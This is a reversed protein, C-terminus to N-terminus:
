VSVLVDSRRRQAGTGTDEAEEGSARPAQEAPLHAAQRAHRQGSQSDAGVQVDVQVFHQGILDQRLRESTQQLLRAVDGQAASIHVQLRGGEQNLRIELSGLEAPDLRITAQQKNQRLQLEVSDRLANLMQEGWKAQPGQLQLRQELVAPRALPGSPEGRLTAEAAPRSASSEGAPVEPLPVQAASEAGPESVVQQRSAGDPVAPMALPRPASLQEGGEGASAPVAAAAAAPTDPATAPPRQGGLLPMAAALAAQVPQGPLSAALAQEARAQVQTDRQLLLSGLLAEVEGVPIAAAAEDAPASVPAAAVPLGVLAADLAPEPLPEPAVLAPLVFGADGPAAADDVARRPEDPGPAAAAAPNTMLQLM